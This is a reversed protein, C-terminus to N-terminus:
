ARTRGPVPTLTEILGAYAPLAQKLERARERTILEFDAWDFGPAVTCGLLAFGHPGRELMAGQWRHAPAVVQPRQGAELDPGIVVRDAGVAGGGPEFTLSGDDIVLQAVPDGLYHHFVEDWRVRHLASTEGPRLLYYIQTSWAREGVGPPLCGTVRGAARYTERFFGGEHPLRELGLLAAVRDADIM